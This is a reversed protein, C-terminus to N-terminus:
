RSRSRVLQITRPGLVLSLLLFPRTTRRGALHLLHSPPHLPLYQVLLLMIARLPTGQFRPIQGPKPRISAPHAPSHTRLCPSRPCGHRAALPRLGHTLNSTAHWRPSSSWPRRHRPRSCPSLVLKSRSHRSWRPWRQPCPLQTLPSSLLPLLVRLVDVM